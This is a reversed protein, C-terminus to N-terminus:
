FVFELVITLFSKEISIGVGFMNKEFYARLTCGCYFSGCGVRKNREFPCPSSISFQSPM